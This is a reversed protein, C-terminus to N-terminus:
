FLSNWQTGSIRSSPPQAPSCGTEAGAKFVVSALASISCDRGRPTESLAPHVASIYLAKVTNVTVGVRSFTQATTATM